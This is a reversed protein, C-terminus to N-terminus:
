YKYKIYKILFALIICVLLCIVTGAYFASLSCKYYTNIVSKYITNEFSNVYANKRLVVFTTLGVNLVTGLLASKFYVRVARHKLDYLTWIEIVSLILVIISVILVLVMNGYNQTSLDNLDNGFEFVLTENCITEFEATIESQQAESIVQSATYPELMTNLMELIDSYEAKVNDVAYMKEFNSHIRNYIGSDEEIKDAIYIPLGYKVILNELRTNFDDEATKAYTTETVAKRLNNTNFFGAKFQITSIFAYEGAAIIIIFVFSMIKRAIKRQKHGM